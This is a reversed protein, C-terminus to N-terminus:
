PAERISFQYDVLVGGRSKYEAPARGGAQRGGWNRGDKVMTTPPIRAASAANAAGKAVAAAAAGYATRM